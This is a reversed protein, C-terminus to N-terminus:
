LLLITLFVGTLVSVSFIMKAKNEYAEEAKRCNRALLEECRGVSKAQLKEEQMGLDQPLDQLIKKEEQSLPAERQCQGIQEAWIRAVSIGDGRGAQECIQRFATRYPMKSCEALIMCIEPLTHKGYSIEDQIRRVISLLEKLHAIRSREREVRNAGYGVCGALICIVGVAKFM